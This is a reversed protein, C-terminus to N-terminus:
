LNVVVIGSVLVCGVYLKLFVLPFFGFFLLEIMKVVCVILRGAVIFGKLIFVITGVLFFEGITRIYENM